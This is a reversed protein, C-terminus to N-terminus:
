FLTPAPQSSPHKWADRTMRNIRLKHQVAFQEAQRNHFIGVLAANVAKVFAGDGKRMMLAYPEVTIQEGEVIAADAPMLHSDALMTDIQKNKLMELGQAYNAFPVVKEVNAKMTQLSQATKEASSGALAGVRGYEIGSAWQSEDKRHAVKIGSIFFNHSFDVQQERERTHTTSGCQLDIRGDKLMEFSQALSVPVVEVKIPTKLTHSLSQVVAQCLEWSFGAPKGNADVSAFPPSSNRVGLKITKSATIKDLTHPQAQAHAAVPLAIGAGALCLAMLSQRQQRVIKVIMKSALAQHLTM